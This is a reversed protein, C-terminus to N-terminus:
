ESYECEIFIESIINNSNLLGFLLRHLTFMVKDCEAHEVKVLQFCRTNTSCQACENPMGHM